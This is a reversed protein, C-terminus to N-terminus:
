KSKESAALDFQQPTKMDAVAESSIHKESWEEFSLKRM